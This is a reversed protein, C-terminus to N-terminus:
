ALSVAAHVLVGGLLTGAFCVVGVIGSGEVRGWMVVYSSSSVLGWMLAIVSMVVLFGWAGVSGEIGFVLGILAGGCFGTIVALMASKISQIADGLGLSKSFVAPRRAGSNRYEEYKATFVARTLYRISVESIM